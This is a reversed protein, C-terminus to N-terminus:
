PFELIFATYGTSPSSKLSLGGGSLRMIQRSLSLGVGSGGEKTTFFPIFIHEAEELPILPGNNRVEIFISENENCYARIHIQGDEKEAGIAQMANRLLNLMVQGILNEDAYVILDEPRIDIKISICPYKNRHTSLQVMREVFKKLYFLAPVPTPIQMLKRYSDVFSILGKGTTHIVELGNRIEDNADGHISLLTHSLSTIPTVSNMIEHTLVRTLRIWSEIEKDDLESNIDSVAIIRVHRNQLTIESVRMSLHVTGRENNFSTQQRSGPQLNNFLQALKGDIRQLQNVHTFVTLGLLRLAEHNTQYIYGRNDIVIVGASISNMILEYYKEKQAVDAKAQQLIKTIRNLSENVLRDNSFRGGTAYRFAYDSNDIADFMFAVKRANHKFLKRILQLAPFWCAMAAGLWGWEQKLAFCTSLVTLAILLSLRFTLSNYFGKLM